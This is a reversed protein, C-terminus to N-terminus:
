FGGGNLLEGADFDADSSASLVDQLEFYVFEVDPQQYNLKRM